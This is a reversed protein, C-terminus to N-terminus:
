ENENTCTADAGVAVPETQIGFNLNNKPCRHVALMAKLSVSPLLYKKPLM